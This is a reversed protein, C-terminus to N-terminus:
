GNQAKRIGPQQPAEGAFALAAGQIGGVPKLLAFWKNLFIEFSQVSLILVNWGDGQGRDSCWNSASFFAIKEIEGVDPMPLINNHALANRLIKIAFRIDYKAIDMSADGRGEKAADRISKLDQCQMLVASKLGDCRNISQKFYDNCNKLANQYDGQKVGRFMPHDNWKKSKGFGENKLNEFPMALGAAAAMLMATVSLDKEGQTQQAKTRQWVEYVRIPLDSYIDHYATM